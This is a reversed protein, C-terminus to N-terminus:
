IEFKLKKQIDSTANLKFYSEIENIFRKDSVNYMLYNITITSLFSNNRDIENYIDKLSLKEIIESYIFVNYFKLGINREYVSAKYYCKIFELIMKEYKDYNITKLESISNIIFGIANDIKLIGYRDMYDKFILVFYDLDNRFSYVIRDLIHYKNISTLVNDKNLISINKMLISKDILCMNRFRKSAKVACTLLDKDYVIVKKLYNFNREIYECESDGKSFESLLMKYLDSIMIDVAYRLEGSSLSDIKKNLIKDRYVDNLNSIM